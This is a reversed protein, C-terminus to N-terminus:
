SGPPVCEATCTAGAEQEVAGAAAAVVRRMPGGKSAKPELVFTM